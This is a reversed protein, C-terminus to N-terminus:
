DEQDAFAQHPLRIDRSGGARQKAGTRGQVRGGSM